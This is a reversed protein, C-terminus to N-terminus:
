NARHQRWGRDHVPGERDSDHPVLEQYILCEDTYTLCLVASNNYKLSALRSELCIHSHDLMFNAVYYYPGDSAKCM